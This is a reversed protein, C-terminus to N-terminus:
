GRSLKEIIGQFSIRKSLGKCFLMGLYKGYKHECKMRLCELINKWMGVLHILFKEFNATQGFWAGFLNSCREVEKAKEVMARCFVVLEGAYM